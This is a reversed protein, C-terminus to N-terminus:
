PPSSTLAQRSIVEISGNSNNVKVKGLVDEVKVQGFSNEITVSGTAGKVEVGGNSNKVTLDGNVGSIEISGFSNKVDVPIKDPPLKVTLDVNVPTNGNIRPLDPKVLVFSGQTIEIETEDALKQAEELTRGRGEINAEVRIGPGPWAELTIRGFTNVVELRKAEGLQVTQEFTRSVRNPRFDNFPGFDINMWLSPVTLSFFGTVVIVIMLFVSAVDFRPPPEAKGAREQLFLRVLYELGLFIPLLPWLRYLQKVTQTGSLNDSLLAAGLAILGLALTIPGVRPRSHNM